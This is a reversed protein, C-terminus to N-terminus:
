LTFRRKYNPFKIMEVQAMGTGLGGATRLSKGVREEDSSGAQNQGDSWCFM